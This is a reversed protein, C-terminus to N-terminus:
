PVKGCRELNQHLRAKIAYIDQGLRAKIAYIDQGVDVLLQMIRRM